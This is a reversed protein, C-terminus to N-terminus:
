RCYKAVIKRVTTINRNTGPMKLAKGMAVENLLSEGLARRRLWFLERGDIRLDDVTNRLAYVRAAAAADPPERLFTVYFANTNLDLEERPFPTSAAIRDLEQDTRIFTEVDFGLQDRLEAEIIREVDDAGSGPADFIVNGSAIFTEVNALGMAAFLERLHEMRVRRGGVNIARLFAIHRGM